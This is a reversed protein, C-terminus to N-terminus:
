KPLKSRDAPILSALYHSFEPFIGSLREVIVGPATMILEHSGGKRLVRVIEESVQESSISLMNRMIWGRWDHREAIATPDEGIKNRKFFDTRVWGPCVTITDIKGTFEAALGESLGTLAFKSAAYCVSGPFAVKGAVSAVNVLKGHGQELFGPMVAYILNLAAFFNVEFVYRWDDLNIGTVPGSRALGANNVLIDLSGYENRCKEIMTRCVQAEAVDGVVCSARGGAALVAQATKELDEAGRANIVLNAHYERALQVALARGIGTSAGTIVACLGEPLRGSRWADKDTM